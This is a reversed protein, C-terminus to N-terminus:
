NNIGLRRLGNTAPYKDTFLTEVYLKKGKEFVERFSKVIYGPRPKKDELILGKELSIDEVTQVKPNIVSLIQTKIKVERNPYDNKGYITFSLSSKKVEGYIYLPYKTNNQFKFDIYNGSITADRGMDVYTSPLTHNKREVIKLNSLLVANYLTSSVQCIGGGIGPVLENNIVVNALKYGYKELVPGLVKNLSFIENPMIVINNASQTAIKINSVRNTDFAKFTTTFAGLEDKINKLVEKKYEPEIPITPL